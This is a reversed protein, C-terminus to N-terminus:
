NGHYESFGLSQRLNDRWDSLICVAEERTYKRLSLFKRHQKSEVTIKCCLTPVGKNVIEFINGVGTKSNKYKQKNKSQEAYTVWRCNDKTYNKSPDIRDLTKDDSYGDLMDKEFNSYYEWDKQYTIGKFYYNGHPDRTQDNCRRKMDYWCQRMRNYKHKM